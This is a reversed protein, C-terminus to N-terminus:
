ATEGLNELLKHETARLVQLVETLGNADSEKLMQEPISKVAASLTGYYRYPRLILEGKVTAQKCLQYGHIDSTIVRNETLQLRM